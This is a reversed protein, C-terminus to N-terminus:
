LDVYVCCLTQHGKCLSMLRQATKRQEAFCGNKKEKQWLATLSQATKRVCCLTQHGKCPSMLRQATKRFSFLPEKASLSFFHMVRNM